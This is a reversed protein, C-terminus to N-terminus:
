LLAMVQDHLAQAARETAALDGLPNDRDYPPLLDPDITAISHREFLRRVETLWPVALLDEAVTYPGSAWTYPLRLERVAPDVPIEDNEIAEAGLLQEAVDRAELYMERISEADDACGLDLAAPIWELTYWDEVEIKEARQLRWDQRTRVFCREDADPFADDAYVGPGKVVLGALGDSDGRIRDFVRRRITPDSRAMQMREAVPANPAARYAARALMTGADEVGYGIANATLRQLSAGFDGKGSHALGDIAIVLM